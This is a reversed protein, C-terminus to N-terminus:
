VAKSETKLAKKAKEIQRNVQKSRDSVSDAGIVEIETFEESEYVDAAIGWQSACRKLCDSNAAKLDNGFNLPDKTDKKFKVEATGYDGKTIEALLQGREDLVRCVLNGKVVVSGTKSAVEYAESVTTEPKFDWNFAFIGDLAKRVYSKKVYNWNGGGKGPRSYQYRKPTSNFIKQVQNENLISKTRTIQKIDLQLKKIEENKTTMIDWQTLNYGM